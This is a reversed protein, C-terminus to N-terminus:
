KVREKKPMFRSQIPGAAESGQKHRPMAYLAFLGMVVALIITTIAYVVWPYPSKVGGLREVLTGGVTTGIATGIGSVFNAIGFYAGLWEEKAFHGVLSDQVPMLLMEGIIFLVAAASLTAFRDAFGIGFLGAGIMLIGAVLSLYPNIKLLVFRSILGQLLVVSVSNITWILGILHASHLVYEGRLPLVLTFQAYFAWILLSLGSFLLFSRHRFIHRYESLSTRKCDPGVCRDNPLTFLIGAALLLFVISALVFPYLDKTTMWTITLGAIIIGLHAFIGRWSFAATRQTNDVTDALLAKITPALFGVGLGNVGSFFLLAAYSDSYHYGLMAVAQLLAGALMISRRGLRDSLPGGLLSGAQYAISGVGLIIGVQGLSLARAKKLFIPFIPVILFSALHMFFVLVLLLAFIKNRWLKGAAVTM